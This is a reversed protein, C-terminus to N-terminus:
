EKKNRSIHMLTYSKIKFFKIVNEMHFVQEPDNMDVDEANPEEMAAIRQAIKVYFRGLPTSEDKQELTSLIAERLHENLRIPM